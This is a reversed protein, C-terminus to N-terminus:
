QGGRAADQGFGGVVYGDSGRGDSGWDDSGWDDSGRGDSGWDDPERGDPERGAPGRERGLALDAIEAACGWSLTMGAGGHGYAHILRRNVADIEVRPGGHRCPRLGIREAIVRAGALAPVLATCRRVIAAAEAPDPEFDGRGVEFTGGLVVDASRPHVYTNGAPNQQDRVADTIGPNAVLVIHGRAPHVAPDAALNQAALGTANVVLDTEQALSSLSTVRRREIRGGAKEVRATLWGLYIDMEALPALFRLEQAYPPSGDRLEVGDAAGTWWPLGPIPTRFLNRTPRLLLGPVGDDLQRGFERYTETAWAAVQPNGDIRTPYWAAAAVASVTDEPADASWVTVNAGRELLRIAATLGIVGGGVVIVDTM